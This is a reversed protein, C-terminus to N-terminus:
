FLFETCSYHMYYGFSTKKRYSYNPQYIGIIDQVSLTVYWVFHYINSGYSTIYRFDIENLSNKTKPIPKIGTQDENGM